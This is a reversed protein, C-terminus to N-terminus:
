ATHGGGGVAGAGEVGALFDAVADAFPASADIMVGHGAGEFEVCRAPGKAAGIMEEALAASLISSLQGRAVFLPRDFGQYAAQLRAETDRKAQEQDVGVAGMVGPDLVLEFRGDLRRALSTEALADLLEGSALPHMQRLLQRYRDVNPYVRFSEDIEDVVHAAGDVRIRPGTDVLTLSRIRIPCAAAFLLAIQGGLSHAVVHLSDLGLHDVLRALDAAHSELAYDGEPSWPSEGHGRLDVAIPRWRDPLRDITARWVARNHAFGHVLLVPEGVGREDSFALDLARGSM